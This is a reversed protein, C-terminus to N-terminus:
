VLAAGGLVRWRFNNDVYIFTASGNIPIVYSQGVGLGTVTIAGGSSNMVFKLQGNAVGTGDMAFDASALIIASKNDDTLSSTSFALPREVFVKANAHEVDNASLTIGGNTGAAILNIATANVGNSELKVSAAGTASAYLRIANASNSASQILVGGATSQLNIASDVSGNSELKVTAATGGTANLKIADASASASRILIGGSQADLKIAGNGTSPDVQGNQNVIEITNLSGGNTTLYIAQALNEASTIDVSGKSNIAVTGGATTNGITILGSDGSGTNINVATSKLTADQGGVNVGLSNTGITIPNSSNSDISIPGGNANGMAVSGTEGAFGNISVSTTSAGFRGGIFLSKIGTGTSIYVEHSETGAGVGAIVNGDGIHIKNSVNGTGDAKIAGSALYIRNTINADGGTLDGSAFYVDNVIQNTSSTMNGGGVRIERAVAGNAATVNGACIKSTFTGAEQDHTGNIYPGVYVNYNGAGSMKGSGITVTSTGTTMDGCAVEVTKAYTTQDGCCIYMYRNSAVPAVVLPAATTMRALQQGGQAVDLSSDVDVYYLGTSPSNYFSYQPAGVTGDNAMIQRSLPCVSLMAPDVVIEDANIDAIGRCVSSPCQQVVAEHVVKQVECLCDVDCQGVAVKSEALCSITDALCREFDVLEISSSPNKTVQDCLQCMSVTVSEPCANCCYKMVDICAQVSVDCAVCGDVISVERPKPKNCNCRDEAEVRPKPKNCSCRDQADVVLACGTMAIIALFKRNIMKEGINVNKNRLPMCAGEMM